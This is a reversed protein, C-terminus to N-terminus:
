AAVTGYDPYGAALAVHSLGWEEQVTVFESMNQNNINLGKLSNIFSTPDVYRGNQKLAYHLHAGFTYGSDGSKAIITDTTVYQGVKVYQESNHVYFHDGSNGRIIIYQALSGNIPNKSNPDVGVFIVTGAEVPTYQNFYLGFDMGPDQSGAQVHDLYSWTVAYEWIPKM